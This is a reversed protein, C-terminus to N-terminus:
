KHPPRDAPKGPAEGSRGPSDPPEEAPAAAPAPAEATPAPQPAAASTPIPKPKSSPKPKSIQEPPDVATKASSRNPDSAQESPVGGGASPGPDVVSTPAAEGATDPVADVDGQQTASKSKREKMGNKRGEAESAAPRRRTEGGKPGLAAAEAAPDAPTRADDDGVFAAALGALLVLALPTAVIATRWRRWGARGPASPQTSPTDAPAGPAARARYFAAAEAMQEVAPRCRDCDALHADLWTADGGSATDLQGDERAAILPLARECEASPAAISALPTGRLEDYLNIRARSILQAVSGPGTGLKTAIEDYSLGELELLELAERQRTPLRGIAQRVEDDPSNLDPGDMGM